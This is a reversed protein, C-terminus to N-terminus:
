ISGDDNYQLVATCDGYEAENDEMFNVAWVCFKNAKTPKPSVIETVRAQVADYDYGLTELAKRRTERTSFDNDLVWHAVKDISQDPTRLYDRIDNYLIFGYLGNVRCYCWVRKTNPDTIQDCVEIKTLGAIPSFSCQKATVRPMAKVQIKQGYKLLGWKYPTKSPTLTGSIEYAM